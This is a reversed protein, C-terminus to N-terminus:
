HLVEVEAKPRVYHLALAQAWLPIAAWRETITELLAEPGLLVLPSPNHRVLLQLV